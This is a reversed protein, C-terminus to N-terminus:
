DTVVRKFSAKVFQEKGILVRNIFCPDYDGFSIRPLSELYNSHSYFLSGWRTTVATSVGLEKTLNFEAQGVENKSGFPYAFHVIKDHIHEEIRRMSGIVEYEVERPGLQNLAPHNVTHAGITVLNNESLERIQSWSMSLQKTLEAPDNIYERFATKLCSKQEIYPTDIIMRRIDNFTYEKEEVSIAKFDHIQNRWHFRIRNNQLLIKELLYWWVIYTHDPFGTTVYITMPIDYKKFLPYAYQYNDLFGDDFTLCIFRKSTGHQLRQKVQEISVFELNNRKFLKIMEELEEPTM